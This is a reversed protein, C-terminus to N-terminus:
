GGGCTATGNLYRGRPQGTDGLPSWSPGLGVLKIRREPPRPDSVMVYDVPSRDALMSM